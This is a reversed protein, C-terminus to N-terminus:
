VVAVVGPESRIISKAFEVLDPENVPLKLTDVDEDRTTPMTVNDGTEDVIGGTKGEEDVSDQFELKVSAAHLGFSPQM